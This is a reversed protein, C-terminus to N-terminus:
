LDAVYRDPLAGAETEVFDRRLEGGQWVSKRQRFFVPRRHGPYPVLAYFRMASSLCSFISITLQVQPRV